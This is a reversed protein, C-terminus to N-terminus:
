TQFVLGNMLNIQGMLESAKATLAAMEQILYKEKETQNPQDGAAGFGSAHGDVVTERRSEQNSISM